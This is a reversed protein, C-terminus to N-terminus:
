ICINFKIHATLVPSQHLSVAIKDIIKEWSVKPTQIEHIHERRSSANQAQSNRCNPFVSFSDLVFSNAFM